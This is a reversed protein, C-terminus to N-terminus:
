QPAKFAGFDRTCMVYVHKPNAPKQGDVMVTVFDLNAMTVAASSELLAFHYTTNVSMSVFTNDSSTTTGAATTTGRVVSVTSAGWLAVEFIDGNMIPMIEVMELAASTTNNEANTASFTYKLPLEGTADTVTGARASDEWIPLLSGKRTMNVVIGGVISDDTFAPIGFEVGSPTADAGTVFPVFGGLYIAASDKAPLKLTTRGSTKAGYLNRVLKPTHMHGYNNVAM